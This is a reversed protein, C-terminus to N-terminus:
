RNSPPSSTCTHSNDDIINEVFLRNHHLFGFGIETGPALASPNIVLRTAPPQEGPPYGRLKPYTHVAGNDAPAPSSYCYSGAKVLAPIGHRALARQIAGPNLPANPRLTLTATGNRNSTLSFATLHVQAGHHAPQPSASGFVGSLGLGLVVAASTAAATIGATLRRNGRRPHYDRQLLRRRAHGPNEFDAAARALTGRLQNELEDTPM